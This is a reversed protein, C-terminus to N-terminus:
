RLMEARMIADIKDYLDSLTGDNVVVYDPNLRDVRESDHVGWMCGFRRYLLPGLRKWKFAAPGTGPRQILVTFGVDSDRIAIEENPFRVSDNMVGGGALQAQRVWLDAWLDSRIQQRGWETGLTIQCHRSTAGIGEILEEKLDGTLYREIHEECYGFDRMLSALMRRLPEAIHQRTMGWRLTLRTAAATKGSGAYGSLGVLLRPRGSPAAVTIPVGTSSVRAMDNM